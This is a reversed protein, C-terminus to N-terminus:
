SADCVNSWLVPATQERQVAMEVIDSSNLEMM